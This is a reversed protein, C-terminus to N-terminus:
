SGDLDLPPLTPLFALLAREVLLTPAIYRQEAEHLLKASLDPPLSVSLPVRRPKPTAPM